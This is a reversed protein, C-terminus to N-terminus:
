HQLAGTQNHLTDVLHLLTTGVHDIEDLSLTNLEDHVGRVTLVRKKVFLRNASRRYGLSYGGDGGNCRRSGRGFSYGGNLAALDGDVGQLFQAAFGDGRVLSRFTCCCTGGSRPAGTSQIFRFAGIAGATSKPQKSVSALRPLLPAKHLNYPTIEM